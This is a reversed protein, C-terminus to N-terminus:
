VDIVVANSEVISRNYLVANYVFPEEYFSRRCATVFGYILAKHCTVHWGFPLAIIIVDPGSMGNIM